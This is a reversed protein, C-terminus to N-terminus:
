KTYIINRILNYNLEGYFSIPNHNMAPLGSPQSAFHNEFREAKYSGLKGAEWGILWARNTRYM